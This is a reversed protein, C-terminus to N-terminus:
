TGSVPDCWVSNRESAVDITVAAVFPLPGMSMSRLWPPGAAPSPPRSVSPPADYAFPSPTSAGDSMRTARPPTHVDNVAVTPTSSAVRPVPLTVNSTHSSPVRTTAELTTRPPLVGNEPVSSTV